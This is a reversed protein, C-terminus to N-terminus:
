RLVIAVAVVAGGLATMAIVAALGRRSRPLFGFLRSVVIMASSPPAVKWTGLRAGLGAADFAVDAHGTMTMMSRFTHSVESHPMQKREVVAAIAEDLADTANSWHARFLITGSADVLYASSPPPGFSRHLTGDIDDIAVEFPFENHAKLRIAHRAKDESTRPQGTTAGPNAERVDVM